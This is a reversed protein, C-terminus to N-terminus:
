HLGQIYSAVADIEAQTMRAATDRMMSADDNSREGSKFKGLETAIYQAHQGSLAPFNASGIGTGDAGHCSACAPVGSKPNGGRFLAQGLEVQDREAEGQSPTQSSFWAAIDARDEDTLSGAQGAMIPSNRKGSKFDALQKVLYKAHQGALKPNMALSSNGDAGHCAGCAASKTKGAEANGAAHAAGVLCLALTSIAFIKMMM